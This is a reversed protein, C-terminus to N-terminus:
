HFPTSLYNGVAIGIIEDYGGFSPNRYYVFAIFTHGSAVTNGEYEEFSIKEVRNEEHNLIGTAYMFNHRARRIWQRFKYLREKEDYQLQWDRNPNWNNFSGSLFVENPSIWGEPDLVFEVLIYDDYSPNLYYTIMSGDDDFETYSGRRRVDSLPLRIPSNTAPFTSLDTLDLIRYKNEAPISEIRFFKGTQLFGFINTSPKYRLNNSLEQAKPLTSIVFPENWRNNRFIVVSHLNNELLTIKSKNQVVVEIDYASSTVNFAPYYFSSFFRIETTIIPKVVFFRSEAIPKDPNRYDFLKVKWNGAYSFKVQENPVFIKGRFNYYKSSIPATEWIINSTRNQTINNLFINADEEWNISCHYFKAFLSPPVVSTIDFEIIIKQDVITPISSAQEANVIIIPPNRESKEGYIRIFRVLVSENIIKEIPDQPYLIQCFNLFLVFLIIKRM